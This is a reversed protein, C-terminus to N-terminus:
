EGQNKSRLWHALDKQSWRVTRSGFRTPKPFDGSEIWRYISSRSLRTKEMVEGITLYITEDQPTTPNLYAPVLSVLNPASKRKM